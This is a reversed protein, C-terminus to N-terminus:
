EAPELLGANRTNLAPPRPASVARRNLQHAAAIALLAVIAGGALDIFYHAGIFPTAAILGANIALAIWRVYPVTWLAWIFLLAGVTHFSPFSILGELAGLDIWYPAGSRLAQLTPVPTYLPRPIEAHLPLGLDLYITTISPTFVSIAVTVLLSVGAAFAFQQLRQPQNKFFLVLPVFVFQPMLTFYALTVANYLWPRRSFFDIYAHRDIGLANDIALLNTDQFPFPLAAAAYSLLTGFLLILLIQAFGEALAALRQDPRISTYFWWTAGLVGFPFFLLPRSFPDIRVSTLLLSTVTATAMVAVLIWIRRTYATITDQAATHQAGM